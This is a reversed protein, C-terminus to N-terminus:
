RLLRALRGVDHLRSLRGAPARGRPGRAHPRACAATRPGAGAPPRRLHVPLRHPRRAGRADHRRAAELAAQGGAERLPGLGRQRRGGDRSPHRGERPRDLAAPQRRRARALFRGYRRVRRGHLPRRRAAGAGPRRRGRGGDRSRDHVDARPGRPRRRRGDPHHRLGRLLGPGPEDRRLRRPLAVDPFRIDLVELGTITAM